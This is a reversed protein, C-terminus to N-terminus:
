RPSYTRNKNSGNAILHGSKVMEGLIRRATGDSRGLLFAASTATIKGHQHLYELIRDAANDSTESNIAPKDSTELNTASKDSMESNIARKDSMKDSTLSLDEEPTLSLDLPVIIKFVDGDILEPAGGSYLKTFKVLNRVGSGLTDARGIEVFFKALTPNKSFPTFTDLDLKGPIRPLNWNETIIRDREIIIKAPYASTYERHVLINSVLERAIKSRASVSQDGDLCFKDLTHKAIFETLLEYADILNTRVMLRDDYRDLNERRLLADTIYNATCSQIVEDRGFLLIAALTLGSAGSEFDQQYLGASRLIESDSLALWPHDNSRNEVLRRVKAMLRALDLDSEKAYKFIKRESYDYTKRANIQTVMASNRTIDYDGDENRDFIKGGYLVVQSNVPVYTWLVVKGDIEAEELSIFLTPAFRQPNNLINVFNKKMGMVAGPNVGLIKGANNVGLLIYGGYRNSFASVTEFVTNSL